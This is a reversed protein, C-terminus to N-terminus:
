LVTQSAKYRTLPLMEAFGFASIGANCVLGHLTLGSREVTAVARAVDADKTVDMVLPRM